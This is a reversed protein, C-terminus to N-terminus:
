RSGASVAARAISSAGVPVDVDLYSAIPLNGWHAPHFTWNQLTERAAEFRTTDEASVEIDAVKGKEDILLHTRIVDGAPADERSRVARPPKIQRLFDREAQQPLLEVAGLYMNFRVQVTTTFGMPGAPTAVPQYVWHRVAQLAADALLADGGLAHVSTVKGRSDVTLKLPVVGQLYNAKAVPPYEPAPNMILLRAAQKSDLDEPLTNPESVNEQGRLNGAACAIALALLFLSHRYHRFKIMAM